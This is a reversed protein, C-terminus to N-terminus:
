LRSRLQVDCSIGIDVGQFSYTVSVSQNPLERWIISVWIQFDQIVLM